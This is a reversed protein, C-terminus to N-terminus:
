RPLNGGCRSDMRGDKRCKRVDNGRPLSETVMPPMFIVLEIGREQYLSSSPSPSFEGAAVRTKCHDGFASLRVTRARRADMTSGAIHYVM